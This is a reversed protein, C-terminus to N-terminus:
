RRHHIKKVLPRGPPTELVIGRKRELMRIREAIGEKIASVREPNIDINKFLGEGIVDPLEKVPKGELWALSGVLALNDEQNGKFSRCKLHTNEVAIRRDHVKTYFSAGNDFLPALGVAELSEAKRIIGFNMWHRDTNAMLYDVVIMKELDDRISEPLGLKTCCQIYHDLHSVANDRKKIGNIYYAQVLETENDVMCECVSYPKDKYRVLEYNIHPVEMMSLFQAAIVENFPEQNFLEESGKLLLRKGDRIVWKKPLMGSSAGNPTLADGEIVGAEGIYIDSRREDFRNEFFNVDKWERQEKENKIWYHDSLSLGLNRVLLERNSGVGEQELISELGVRKEPIARSFFWNNIDYGSIGGGGRKLGLPLHREEYLKLVKEIRYDEDLEVACVPYNNHYLTYEM